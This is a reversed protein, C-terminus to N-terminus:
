EDERVRRVASGDALVDRVAEGVGKTLIDSSAPASGGEIAMVAFRKCLCHTIRNRDMMAGDVTCDPAISYCISVIAQAVYDSMQARPVPLARAKEVIVGAAFEALQSMKEHKLRREEGGDFILKKERVREMLEECVGLWRQWNAHSENEAHDVLPNEITAM